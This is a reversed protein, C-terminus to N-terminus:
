SAGDGAEASRQNERVTKADIWYGPWRGSLYPGIEPKVDQVKLRSALDPFADLLPEPMFARGHKDGFLTRDGYQVLHWDPGTEFPEDPEAFAPERGVISEWSNPDAPWYEATRSGSLKSLAGAADRLWRINHADTFALAIVSSTGQVPIVGPALMIEFKGPPLVEFFKKIGVPGEVLEGDATRYAPVVAVSYVPRVSRNVISAKRPFANGNPKDVFWAAVKEADKREEAEQRRRREARLSGLAVFVAGVTGVSTFFTGWHAGDLFGM